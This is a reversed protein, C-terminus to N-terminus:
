EVEEVNFLKQLKDLVEKECEKHGINWHEQKGGRQPYVILSSNVAHYKEGCFDCIFHDDRM